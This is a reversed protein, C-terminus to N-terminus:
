CVAGLLQFCSYYPCPNNLAAWIAASVLTYDCGSYWQSKYIALLCSDPDWFPLLLCSEGATMWTIVSSSWRWSCFQLGQEQGVCKQVLIEYWCKVWIKSHMQLEAYPPCSYHWFQCSPDPTFEGPKRCELQFPFMELIESIQFALQHVNRENIYSRDNWVVGM